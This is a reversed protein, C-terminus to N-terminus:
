SEDEDDLYEVEYTVINPIDFTEEHIPEIRHADIINIIEETTLIKDSKRVPLIQQATYVVGLEPLPKPYQRSKAKPNHINANTKKKKKPKSKLVKKKPKKKPKPEKWELGLVHTRPGMPGKGSSKSM